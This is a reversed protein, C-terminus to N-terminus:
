EGTCNMEANANAACSINIIITAYRYDGPGMFCVLGLMVVQTIPHYYLGKLGTPREYIAIEQSGRDSDTGSNYASMKENHDTM